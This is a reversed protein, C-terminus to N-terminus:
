HQNGSKDTQYCGIDAGPKDVQAANTGTVTVAALASFDTKGKGIAPSGSALRFDSTGVMNLYDPLATPSVPATITSFDFKDVDYNVFKPNNTKIINSRVDSSKTKSVGATANFEDVISQANGYYFTNGYELNLTDADPVVRFGYRCNIVMNNFFKGKAGAEINLSAGRGAKVRRFGNNVITNNYVYVNCQTVAGGSNSLKIGNTAGGICLNYAINGVTGGKINVCEGGTEGCFEFTNRMMNIKGGTVRIGDDKTGYIWSDEFIFNANDNDFEIAYRPDGEAYIAPDNNPGAPGGTYEIRTWKIIVDGSNSGCQIGGWYGKYVNATGQQSAPVTFIVPKNKSGVSIFVGNITLQPSSATTSGDGSVIVTVGEQVVLSDGSNVTVDAVMYYTKNKLLTGKLTGKLTDTTIGNSVTPEPNSISVDSDDKKCASLGALVVLALM